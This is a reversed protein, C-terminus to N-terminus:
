VYRFWLCAYRSMAPGYVNMSLCIQVMFMCLWVYSLWLCKYGSMAPGYANMSLFLQVMFM